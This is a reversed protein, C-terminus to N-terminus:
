QGNGAGDDLIPADKEITEGEKVEFEAARAFFPRVADPGDDLLAPDVAFLRYKGPRLGTMSFEGGAAVRQTHWSSTDEPSQCLLVLAVPMRAPDGRADAVIGSLKAGNPSVVIKLPSAPVGRAFDLLGDPADAGDLRVSKVFDNRPLPSVRLRYRGPFVGDIRFTGDSAAEGTLLQGWSDRPTVPDLHVVRKGTTFSHGTDGILELTGSVPQASALPLTLNTEDGAGLNVEALPSEMEGAGYAVARLWYTGPSLGAITFKGDQGVPMESSYSSTSDGSSLTLSVHAAGPPIGTVAGGISLIRESVLRIDIGALDRGPVAEVVTARDKNGGAPFWAPRYAAPRTGDSRIEPSASSFRQPNPSARIQYKGPAGSLRFEGRDDTTGAMAARGSVTFAFAEVDVGQVPDGSEDTVHGAIVARPAMEIILGSRREGAKLVVGAESWDNGDKGRIAVYGTREPNLAYTAAPMNAISFYGDAQSMAGFPNGDLDRSFMGLHAGALPQRTVADIVMGDIGANQAALPSAFVLLFAM